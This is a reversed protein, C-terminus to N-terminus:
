FIPIPVNQLDFDQLTTGQHSVRCLSPLSIVLGVVRFISFVQVHYCHQPHNCKCNQRKKIRVTSLFEYGKQKLDFLFVHFVARKFNTNLCGFIWHWPRPHPWLELEFLILQYLMRNGWMWKTGNWIAKGNRLNWYKLIQGQFHSILTMTWPWITTGVDRKNWILPHQATESIHKNWFKRYFEWSWSWLYPWFELDCLSDLMRKVWKSEMDIPGGM